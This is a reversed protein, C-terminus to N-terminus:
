MQSPTEPRCAQEYLAMGERKELLRWRSKPPTLAEEPLPDKYAKHLSTMLIENRLLWRKQPVCQHIDTVEDWKKVVVVPHQDFGLYFNILQKSRRDTVIEVTQKQPKIKDATLQKFGHYYAPHAISGSQLNFFPIFAWIVVMITSIQWPKLGQSQVSRRAQVWQWVMLLLPISLAGTAFFLDRKNLEMQALLLFMLGSVLPVSIVLLGIWRGCPETRSKIMHTWSWVGMLIFYPLAPLMMRAYVPLPEYNSLSTSGFWYFLLYSIGAGFWFLWPGQRLNKLFFLAGLAPWCIILVLGLGTHSLISMVPEITFRNILGETSYTVYSSDQLVESIGQFRFLPNGTAVAYAALYIFLLTVGTTIFARWFLGHQRKRLDYFMVILLFPIIGIVTLKVTFAWFLAAGAIIAWRRAHTANRGFHISAVGLLYGASLVSDASLYSVEGLQLPNFALLMAAILGAHVSAFSVVVAYLVTISLLSTIVPLLITSWPTVEFIQYFLATPFLLGLRNSFHHPAPTYQGSAIQHAIQAYGMDDSGSM